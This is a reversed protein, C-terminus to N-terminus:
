PSVPQGEKEGCNGKFLLSAGQAQALCHNAFTKHTSSPCPTTICRLGTDVAACIPDTIATCIIYGNFTAPSATETPKGELAGCEGNFQFSANAPVECANSYTRYLHSPCPSTVCRMGTDYAACLPSYVQACLPPRTYILTDKTQLTLQDKTSDTSFAMPNEPAEGLYIQLMGLDCVYNGQKLTDGYSVVVDNLLGGFNFATPTDATLPAKSNLSYTTGRVDTCTNIPPTAPAYRYTTSYFGTANFTFETEDGNFNLTQSPINPATAVLTKAGIECSYSYSILYDEQSAVMQGNKFSITWHSQNSGVGPTFGRAGLSTSYFTKGEIHDCVTPVPLSGPTCDHCDSTGGCATLGAILTFLTLTKISHM